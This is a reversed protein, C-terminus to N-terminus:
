KSGPGLRPWQQLFEVLDETEHHVHDREGDGVVKLREVSEATRVWVTRMGLQHAPKLNHAMDDLMIARRPDIGLRKVVGQYVAMDPKPTYGAAVIDFVDEFHRTVGLKEMIRRAHPASGNTFIVKRGPLGALLADLEPSAPIGSLDIDHVYDIFKEPPCQHLSMLGRLSTGHERWYKKQLAFAEDRDVKLFDAIFDRIRSEVQDFLNYRAHYLTNDLDFLWTDIDPGPAAATLDVGAAAADLVDERSPPKSPMAPLLHRSTDDAALILDADYAAAM